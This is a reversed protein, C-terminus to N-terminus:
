TAIDQLWDDTSPGRWRESRPGYITDIQALIPKRVAMPRGCVGDRAYRRRVELARVPATLM